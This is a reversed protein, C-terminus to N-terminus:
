SLQLSQSRETIVDSKPSRSLYDELRALSKRIEALDNNETAFLRLVLELVFLYLITNDALDLLQGYNAQMYPYTEMGVVIANLFILGIVSRHFLKPNSL